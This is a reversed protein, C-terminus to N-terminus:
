WYLLWRELQVHRTDECLDYHLIVIGATAFPKPVIGAEVDM